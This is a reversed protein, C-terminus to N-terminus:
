EEDDSDEDSWEIASQLTDGHEVEAQDDDPPYISIRTSSLVENHSFKFVRYPTRVSLRKLSPCRAVLIGADKRDVHYCGLTCSITRLHQFHPFDAINEGPVTTSFMTELLPFISASITMWKLFMQFVDPSEKNFSLRLNRLPLQGVEAALIGFADFMDDIADVAYINRTKQISLIELTRFLPAKARALEAFLSPHAELFVLNPLFTSIPSPIAFQLYTLTPGMPSDVPLTLRELTHNATLFSSFANRIGHKNVDVSGGPPLGVFRTHHGPGLSLSRLNPFHLSFLQFYDKSRQIDRRVWITLEQLSNCSTNLLSFLAPSLLGRRRDEWTIEHLGSISAFQAPLPEMCTTRMRISRLGKFTTEIHHILTDRTESPACFSACDYVNIRKLNTMAGFPITSAEADITFGRVTLDHVLGALNHKELFMLIQEYSAKEYGDLLVKRVLARRSVNLLIASVLALNLLYRRTTQSAISDWLEIPLDVM